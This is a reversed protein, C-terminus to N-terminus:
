ALQKQAEAVRGAWRNFTVVPLRSKHQEIVKTRSKGVVKADYEARLVCREQIERRRKDLQKKQCRTCRWPHAARLWRGFTASSSMPQRRQCSLDCSMSCTPM